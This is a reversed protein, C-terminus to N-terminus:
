NSKASLFQEFTLGVANAVKGHRDFEVEVWAECVTNCTGGGWLSFYVKNDHCFEPSALYPRKPDIRPYNSVHNEIPSVMISHEDGVYIVQQSIVHSKTKHGLLAEFPLDNERVNPDISTTITQLKFGKCSIEDIDKATEFVRGGINLEDAGAYVSISLVVLAVLNRM